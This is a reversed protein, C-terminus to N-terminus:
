SEIKELSKWLSEMSAEPGRSSINNTVFIIKASTFQLPFMVAEFGLRRTTNVYFIDFDAESFHQLLKWGKRLRFLLYAKRVVDSISSRLSSSSSNTEIQLYFSHPNILFLFSPRNHEFNQSM